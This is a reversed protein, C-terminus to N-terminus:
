AVVMVRVSGGALRRMPWVASTVIVVADVDALASYTGAAAMVVAFPTDVTLTMWFPLVVGTVTVVPRTPSTPVCILDPSVAPSVMTIPETEVAVVVVVPVVPVVPVPPNPPPVPPPKPPPVPPPNPLRPPNPPAM